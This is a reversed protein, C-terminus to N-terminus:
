SNSEFGRQHANTDNDNTENENIKRQFANWPDVYILKYHAPSLVFMKLYSLFKFQMRWCLSGCTKYNHGSYSWKPCRTIQKTRQIKTSHRCHANTTAQSLLKYNILMLSLLDCYHARLCCRLHWHQKKRTPIERGMWNPWHPHSFCVERPIQMLLTIGTFCFM